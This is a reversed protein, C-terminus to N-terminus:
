GLTENPTLHLGTPAQHHASSEDPDTWTKAARPYGRMALKACKNRVLSKSWGFAWNIHRNSAPACPIIKAGYSLPGHTPPFPAIRSRACALATVVMSPV